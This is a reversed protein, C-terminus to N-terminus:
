GGRFFGFFSDTKNQDFYLDFNFALKCVLWGFFTCFQRFQDLKQYCDCTLEEDLGVKAAFTPQHQDRFRRMKKGNAFDLVYM